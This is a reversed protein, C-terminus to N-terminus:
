AASRLRPREIWELCAGDPDPFFGARLGDIPLGPGM